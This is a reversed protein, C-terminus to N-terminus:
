FTSIYLVTTFSFPSLPKTNGLYTATTIAIGNEFEIEINQEILCEANIYPLVYM